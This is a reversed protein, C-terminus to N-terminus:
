YDPRADRFRWHSFPNKPKGRGKDFLIFLPKAHYADHRFEHDDYVKVMGNHHEVLTLPTNGIPLKDIGPEWDFHSDPYRNRIWWANTRLEPLITM